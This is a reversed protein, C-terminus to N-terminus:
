LIEIKYEHFRTMVNEIVNNCMRRIDKEIRDAMLGSIYIKGKCTLLTKNLGVSEIKWDMETKATGFMLINVYNNIFVHKGNEIDVTKLVIDADASFSRYAFTKRTHEHKITMKRMDILSHPIHEEVNMIMHHLHSVELEHFLYKGSATLHDNTKHFSIREKM